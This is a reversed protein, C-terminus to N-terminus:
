ALMCDHKPFVLDSLSIQKESQTQDEIWGQRIRRPTQAEFIEPVAQIARERLFIDNFDGGLEASELIVFVEEGNKGVVEYFGIRHNRPDGIKEAGDGTALFRGSAFGVILEHDAPCDHRSRDAANSASPGKGLM